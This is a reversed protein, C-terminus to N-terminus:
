IRSLFAINLRIPFKGQLENDVNAHKFCKSSSKVFTFGMCQDDSNCEGQCARISRPRTFVQKDLIYNLQPYYVGTKFCDCYEPYANDRANAFLETKSQAQEQLRKCNAEFNDHIINYAQAWTAHGLTWLSFLYDSTDEIDTCASGGNKTILSFISGEAFIQSTGGIMEELSTLSRQFGDSGFSLALNAWKLQANSDNKLMYENYQDILYEINKMDRGFVVSHELKELHLKISQIEEALDKIRNIMSNPNITDWGTNLLTLFPAPFGGNARSYTFISVLVVFKITKM